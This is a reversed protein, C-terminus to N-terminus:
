RSWVHALVALLAIALVASAAQWFLLPHAELLPRTKAHLYSPNPHRMDFTFESLEDYRKEPDPHVARRLTLDVWAPVARDDRLASRYRLRHQAARTRVKAADTGYPLCGTLMQYAIVGLSFLDSRPSGGDGVFYEPATYQLTGLIAGEATDAMGAMWVSGLDVIKVTGSKDIIVNEPQLDQHLMEMRHLAQLGKAIQDVIDRVTELDPRPNDIMWQALSQGEVYDFVAYLVTRRAPPAAAALVHPSRVRRAIWEERMLRKLYSVDGRMEISPVKLIILAGEISEALNVHSRHSAHLERLVRFGDVTAGPEPLPAPPLDTWCTDRM